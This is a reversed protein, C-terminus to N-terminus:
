LFSAESQRETQAILDSLLPTGESNRAIEPVFTVGLDRAAEGAGSEDGFLLVSPRSPLLTWSRIANRQIVDIHGSFPKPTAFITLM